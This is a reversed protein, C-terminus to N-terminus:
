PDRHKFRAKADLTMQGSLLAEVSTDNLLHRRSFALVYGNIIPYAEEAKFSGSDCGGIGFANHCAGEIDIWTMPVQTVADYQEQAGVPDATGTLSMLPVKVSQHGMPGFWDRKISGAMLVGAVIREDGFGKAYAAEYGDLCKGSASQACHGAVLTTDFSAGLVGWASHVGFSYGSMIVRSTNVKGFLPDETPLDDMANISATLDLPRWAYMEPPRPQVNDRLTNSTHDPAIVVWGHSALHRVMFSSTGGFGQDGHSHVHLPYKGDAYVSPALPSDVFAKRDRFFDLYRAITKTPNTTPYWVNLVITRPMAGEIPIYTVDWKRYGVQFPGDAEVPLSLPDVDIMDAMDPMDLDEQLDKNADVIMDVSMDSSLDPSMDTSPNTTNNDDSCASLAVCLAILICPSKFRVISETETPNLYLQTM